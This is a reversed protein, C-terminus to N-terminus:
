KGLGVIIKFRAIVVFGLQAVEVQQPQVGFVRECVFSVSCHPQLVSRGQTGGCKQLIGAHQIRIVNFIPDPQGTAIQCDSTERVCFVLRECHELLGRAIAIGNDCQSFRGSSILVNPGGPFLELFKRFLVIDGEV